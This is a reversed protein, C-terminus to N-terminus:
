DVMMNINGIGTGGSAVKAGVNKLKFVIVGSCAM